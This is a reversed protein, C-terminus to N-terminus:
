SKNDKALIANFGVPNTKSAEGIFEKNMRQYEEILKANLSPRTNRICNMMTDQSIPEDRLASILAADNVIYAIDSGVYNETKESLQETDIDACPREALYLDFMKKRTTKDPAPVYEIIDLRGKRLVASDILQPRNTTGIVFIGRKGCENLQSLIENVEGATNEMGRTGRRPAIADFEDLCIISPANAEAKKFLDAIMTQSGHIYISGLDSAKVLCFKFGSEEAFKSAFFTKGCGPPGYLLMGNPPTLKYKEAKEKNKLVFLVRQQLRTKLDDMGAVDAFGKGTAVKFESTTSVQGREDRGGGGKDQSDSREERRGGGESKKESSEVQGKKALMEMFLDASNLRDEQKTQLAQRLVDQLWKPVDDRGKFSLATKKRALHIKSRVTKADDGEELPLIENEWPAKGFLMTYLVAATSFIDSEPGYHGYFTEPARYWPSLDETLFTINQMPYEALHGLDILVGHMEPQQSTIIINRPTIDCHLLGAGHIHSLAGLLDYGLQLTQPVSCLNKGWLLSAELLEGEVFPTIYYPYETGGVLQVGNEVHTIVNPHSLRQSLVIERIQGESNKAIEPVEAPFFLKLFFRNGDPKAVIYTEDYMGKKIFTQVTYSGFAQQESLVSM